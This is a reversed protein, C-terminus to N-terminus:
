VRPRLRRRHSSLGKRHCGRRLDRWEDPRYSVAGDLVFSSLMKTVIHAANEDKSSRKAQWSGFRSALVALEKAKYRSLLEAKVSAQSGLLRQFQERYNDFPISGNRFERHFTKFDEFSYPALAVAPPKAAAPAEPTGTAHPLMAELWDRVANRDDLGREFVERVHKQTFGYKTAFDAITHKYKTFLTRIEPGSLSQPCHALTLEEATDPLSLVSFRPEGFRPEVVHVKGSDRLERLTKHVPNTLPEAPDYKPCAFEHRLDGTTFERGPTTALFALIAAPTVTM